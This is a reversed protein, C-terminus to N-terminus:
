NLTKLKYAWDGKLKFNMGVWLNEAENYGVNVDLGNDLVNYNKVKYSKQNVTINEDSLYTVQPNFQRCSQAGIINTNKIINADWWTGLTFKKNSTYKYVKGETSGDFDYYDNSLLKIYCHDNDGDDNTDSKFSILKDNQYIEIAYSKYNYAEIGLIKVQFALDSIIEKTNNDKEFFSVKHYGVLDGNRYIDFEINHFNPILQAYLNCNFFLLFFLLYTIKKKM